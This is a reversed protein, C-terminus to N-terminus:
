RADPDSAKGSYDDFDRAHSMYVDVSQHGVAQSFGGKQWDAATNWRKKNGATLLYESVVPISSETKNLDSEFDTVIRVYRGKGISKLALSKEGSVLTYKMAKKIKKQDDSVEVTAMIKAKGGLSAKYELATPAASVQVWETSHTGKTVLNGPEFDLWIKLDKASANAQTPNNRIADNEAASIKATYFRVQSIAAPLITSYTGRNRKPLLTNKSSLGIRMPSGELNKVPADGFVPKEVGASRFGNQYSDGGSKFDFASTYQVWTDKKIGAQPDSSDGWQFEGNDDDFCVGYTVKGTERIAIRFLYSTGWGVAIGKVMLPNHDAVINKGDTYPAVLETVGGRTTGKSPVNAWVMGSVADIVKYKGTDPIEIYDRKGDLVLTTKGDGDTGLEPAGHIYGDSGNGSKDKVIPMGQIAGEILVEQPAANGIAVKFKGALDFAHSFEVTKSEGAQLSYKGSEIVKGDILLEANATGPENGINKVDAKVFLKNSGIDSVPGDGLRTRLRSYDFTAKRFAVNVDVSTGALTLKHQGLEAIPMSGKLTASKGPELITIAGNFKYISKKQGNDDIPLVAAAIGKGENKVVATVTVEGNSLIDTPSISINSWSLQQKDKAIVTTNALETKATSNESGFNKVTMLGNPADLDILFYNGKKSHIRSDLQTLYVTGAGVLPNESVQRAYAHWHGGLLLDVKGPEALAPIYRKTYAESIPHHMTLIRFDANKAADSALDKKLWALSDQITKVTEPDAAKGASESNMQFLGWPSSNMLSIHAGAFDLSSNGRVTAGYEADQINYVYANFYDGGQDHNGASYVVPYNHIFDNDLKGKFWFTFQDTQAGTGEVLDGTHIILAPNISRVDADFKTRTSFVHSDSLTVIKVAGPNTGLTSFSASVSQGGELEVKYFYKSGKDSKALKDLKVHYLNMPSGQFLPAAKDPSVTVKEDLKDKDKGYWITAPVSKSSEWVVVMSDAKPALLYPGNNFVPGGEAAMPSSANICLLALAAFFWFCRILRRLTEM